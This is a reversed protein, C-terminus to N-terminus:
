GPYFKEGVQPVVPPDLLWACRILLFAIADGLETRKKREQLEGACQMCVPGLEEPTFEAFPNGPALDDGSPNLTEACADLLQSIEDGAKTRQPAERIEDAYHKCWEALKEEGAEMFPNSPPQPRPM